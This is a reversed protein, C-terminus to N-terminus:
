FQVIKKVKHESECWLCLLNVVIALSVEEKSLSGHEHRDTQSAYAKMARSKIIALPLTRKTVSWDSSSWPLNKITGQGYRWIDKTCNLDAIHVKYIQCIHNFKVM